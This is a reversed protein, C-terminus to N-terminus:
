DCWEVAAVIIDADVIGIVVDVWEANSYAVIIGDKGRKKDRSAEDSCNKAEHNPQIKDVDSLFDLFVILFGCIFSFFISKTIQPM